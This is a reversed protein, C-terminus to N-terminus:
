LNELEKEYNLLEQSIEQKEQELTKKLTKLSNQIKEKFESNKFDKLSEKLLNFILDLIKSDEKQNITIITLWKALEWDNKVTELIHLIYEKKTM